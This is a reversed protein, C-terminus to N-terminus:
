LDKLWQLLRQWWSLVPPKEKEPSAEMTRQQGEVQDPEEEEGASPLVHEFGYDLMSTTDLWRGDAETNLAVAVLEVEGQAAAAVMTFGAPVTYGTKGGIAKAYFFESDSQILYNGNDWARSSKGTWTIPEYHAAAVFERFDSNKMAASMIGALDRATTYHSAHPYGDPNVFNTKEAGLEEARQNMLNVFYKLASVPDLNPEGKAERAVHVAVAYAADNGSALMMGYVLERLSIRDGSQLYARSSDWAIMNVEEGITVLEDLSGYEAALLATMIKTTSAPYMITDPNRSLIEKGSKIEMLMASHALIQPEAQAQVFQFGSFLVSLIIILGTIRAAKM